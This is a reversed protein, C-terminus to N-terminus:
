PSFSGGTAIAMLGLITARIMALSVPRFEMIWRCRSPVSMLRWTMMLSTCRWGTVPRSLWTSKMRTSGVWLTRTFTGIRRFPMGWPTLSPPMRSKVWRSISTSHRGVKMGAWTSM